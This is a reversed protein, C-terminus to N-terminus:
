RTNGSPPRVALTSSSRLASHFDEMVADDANKWERRVSPWKPQLWPPMCSAAFWGLSKAISSPSTSNGMANWFQKRAESTQGSSMLLKGYQRRRSAFARGFEALLDASAQKKYRGELLRFVDVWPGFMKLRDSSLSSSTIRYAVLPAPAYVVSGLLPLTTCLYSDEVGNLCFPEKGLYRIVRGPVSCYSASAFPGTSDNYRTLFDMGSIVEVKPQAALPDSNWTYAGYGEFNLHGTFFGVATPHETFLQHLFELYKTHWLDDADLFTILDGSAHACLANRTAAVGRNEQQLLTIRPVYSKLLAYTDDTSGDDMVIIEDAARGQNLVSEVTSQITRAGNYVPILVSIKM